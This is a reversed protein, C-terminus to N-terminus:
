AQRERRLEAAVRFAEHAPVSLSAAIAMVNGGKRLADRLRERKSSVAAEVIAEQREAPALSPAFVRIPRGDSTLEYAIRRTAEARAPAPPAAPPETTNKLPRPAPAPPPAKIIPRRTCWSGDIAGVVRWKAGIELTILGNEAAQALLKRGTEERLLGMGRAIELSTPCGRGALAAARCLKIATHMSWAPSQRRLAVMLATLTVGLAAAARPLHPDVDLIPVARAYLAGIEARRSDTKNQRRKPRSKRQTPPVPLGHRKILYYILTRGIQMEAAVGRVTAGPAALAARLADIDYTNRKNAHRIVIGHRRVIDRVWSRSCNLLRSIQPATKGEAALAAVEDLAVSM